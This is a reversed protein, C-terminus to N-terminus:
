NVLVFGTESQPNFEINSLDLQDLSRYQTLFTECSWSKIKLKTAVGIPYSAGNFRPNCEIALYDTKGEDEIVAVDFAFVEKMGRQAIWEAMPEVLEWPQHISPYRNGIHAYGDLVQETVALRKLRNHTVCYQLNLFTSATMEEQIQLPLDDSFTKLAENLQEQNECRRIGAGDVSIAPKLYCPYPFPSM